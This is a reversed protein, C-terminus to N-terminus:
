TCWSLEFRERLGVGGSVAPPYGPSRGQDEAARGRRPVGGLSGAPREVPPAVSFHSLM